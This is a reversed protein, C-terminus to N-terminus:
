RLYASIMFSLTEYRERRLNGSSRIEDLGYSIGVGLPPRAPRYALGVSGGWWRVYGHRTYDPRGIQGEVYARIVPHLVTGEYRAVGRWHVLRDRQQDIVRSRIRPGFGLELGPVPSIAVTGFGEVFLTRGLDTGTRGEAYGLRITLVGGTLRGEVGPVLGSVADVMGGETMRAMVWTMRPGVEFETIRQAPLVAPKAAYGLLLAALVLGPTPKM